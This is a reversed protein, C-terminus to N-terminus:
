GRGKMRMSALLQDGASEGQRRGDGVGDVESKAYEEEANGCWEEERGVPLETSM